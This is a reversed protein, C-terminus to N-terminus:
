AGANSCTTQWRGVPLCGGLRRGISRSRLRGMPKGRLLELVLLVDSRELLVCSDPRVTVQDERIIRRGDRQQLDLVTKRVAGGAIEDPRSRSERSRHRVVIDSSHLLPGPDKEPEFFVGYVPVNPFHKKVLQYRYPHYAMIHKTPEDNILLALPPWDATKGHAFIRRLGEVWLPEWRPDTMDMLTVERGGVERRMLRLGFAKALEIEYHGLWSNGLSLVLPGRMGASKMGNVAADYRTFDLEMTGNVNTIRIANANWFWQAADLGYRKMLNWEDSALPANSLFAGFRPLGTATLKFPLVRLDVPIDQRAGSDDSLRITGSYVGPRASEPITATVWYLRSSESPATHASPPRLFMPYRVFTKQDSGRAEDRGRTTAVPHQIPHFLVDEVRVAGRLWTVDTHISPEVAIAHLQRLAYIAFPESEIEGATAVITLRDLREGSAPRSNPFVEFNRDRRYIMWGRKQDIATPQLTESQAPMVREVYGRARLQAELDRPVPLDAPQGAFLLLALLASL